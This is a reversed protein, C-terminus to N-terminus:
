KELSLWIGSRFDVKGRFVANELAESMPEGPCDTTLTGEAGRCVRCFSLGGECIVCGTSLGDARREECPGIHEVYEHSTMERKEKECLSIRVASPL